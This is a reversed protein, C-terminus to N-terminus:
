RKKSSRVIEKEAERRGWADWALAEALSGVEGPRHRDLVREISEVIAPFSLREALFAHVAVENAASFVAPASEGAALARRALDVAPFTERDLPEFDLAGLVTPELRPFRNEWREPYALAYQIPFVMANPALQAIWSGDRWEVLSHVISQPHVVVDIQEAPLGFLWHAEILELAKNVLTASDITIKEGMEWTPHRLAEAKRIAAFTARDRSRFPGGSATLVLRRVEGPAGARLAQHLAVHESDVPLLTAGTTRALRTLLHGAVVLAEKNALAVTKGAALAAHVAPLGACGVMAAVVRDIDDRTVLELLAEAGVALRVGRPLEGAILEAARPDVVVVAAPAFERVIEVLERPRSGWAGVARISLREPHHRVVELCSKGISGTAGM